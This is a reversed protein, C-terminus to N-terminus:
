SKPNGESERWIRDRQKKRELREAHEEQRLRRKEQRRQQLEAESEAHARHANLRAQHHAKMRALVGCAWTGALIPEIEREAVVTGIMRWIEFLILRVAGELETSHDKMPSVGTLAGALVRARDLDLEPTLPLGTARALGAMLGTRFELAGCTTCMIKTCLNKNISEPSYQQLWNTEPTLPPATTMTPEGRAAMDATPAGLM